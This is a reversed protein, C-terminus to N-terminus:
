FQLDHQCPFSPQSAPPRVMAFQLGSTAVISYSLWAIACLKNVRVLSAKKKQIYPRQQRATGSPISGTKLRWKIRDETRSNFDHM